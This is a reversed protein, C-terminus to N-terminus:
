SIKNFIITTTQQSGFSESEIKWTLFWPFPNLVYKYMENELNSSTDEVLYCWIDAWSDFLRNPKVLLRHTKHRQKETKPLWM